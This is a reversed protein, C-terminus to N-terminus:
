SQGCEKPREAASLRLVRVEAGEEVTVDEGRQGRRRRGESRLVRTIVSPGGSSDLIM